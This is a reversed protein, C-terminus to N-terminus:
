HALVEWFQIGYLMKVKSAEPSELMAERNANALIESPLPSLLLAKGNEGLICLETGSPSFMAPVQRNEPVKWESLVNGSEDWLRTYGDMSTSLAQHRSEEYNVCVPQKRHGQFANLLQGKNNWLKIDCDKTWTILKDGSTFSCGALNSKLLINSTNDGNEDFVKIAALGTQVLVRDAHSNINFQLNYVPEAQFSTILDGRQNRIDFKHNSYQIFVVNARTILVKQVVGMADSFSCQEGGSSNWLKATGDSSRTLVSRGDPSFGAEQVNATHGTLTALLVGNQAWIRATNDRSCTVIQKSDPSWAAGRVAELHGKLIALTKGAPSLVSLVASNNWALILSGDPSPLMKTFGSPLETIQFPEDLKLVFWAPQRTSVLLRKGDGFYCASLIEHQSTFAARAFSDRVAEGFARMVYPQLTDSLQLGMWSLLLADTKRNQQRAMDALLALRYSEARVGRQYARQANEEARQRAETEASKANEAVLKAALAERYAKQAEAVSKQLDSLWKRKSEEIKQSLDNDNPLEKGCTVLAAVFQSIAEGYDKAAMYELGKNRYKNYCDVPSQAISFAPFLFLFLIYRM